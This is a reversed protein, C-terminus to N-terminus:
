SYKRWARLFARSYFGKRVHMGSLRKLGYADNRARAARIEDDNNRWQQFPEFCAAYLRENVFLRSLTQGITRFTQRTLAYGVCRLKEEHKPTIARHQGSCAKGSGAPNRDEGDIHAAQTKKGTESQFLEM